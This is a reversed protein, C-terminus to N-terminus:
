LYKVIEKLDKRINHNPNGPYNDTKYGLPLLCIPEINNDLNLLDKLKNKDFMEIWISDVNENKASLMMHTAVITADMEYTSYNDKHWAIDKNSCVVLVLPANYRCPTIEDIRKLWEESEIVYIIQPQLNKATPALNGSLLIKNIKEKEVKINKFSRVATREKIVKDFEM